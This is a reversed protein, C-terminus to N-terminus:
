ASKQTMGEWDDTTEDKGNEGTHDHDYDDGGSGSELGADGADTQDHLVQFTQQLDYLLRFVKICSSHM